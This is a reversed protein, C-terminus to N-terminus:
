PQARAGFWRAPLKATVSNDVPKVAEPNHFKLEPPQRRSLKRPCQTRGEGFLDRVNLLLTTSRVSRNTIRQHILNPSKLSEKYFEFKKEHM